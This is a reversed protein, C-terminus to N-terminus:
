YGGIFRNTKSISFKMYGKPVKLTIFYKKM